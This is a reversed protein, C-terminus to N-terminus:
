RTLEHPHRGAQTERADYIQTLAHVASDSQTHTHTQTNTWSLHVVARPTGTLTPFHNTAAPKEIKLHHYPNHSTLTWILFSNSSGCTHTERQAHTHTHTHTHTHAHTKRKQLGYTSPQFGYTNPSAPGPETDSEWAATQWGLRVDAGRQLSSLCRM